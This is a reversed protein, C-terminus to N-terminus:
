KKGYLRGAEMFWEVKEPETGYPVECGTALVYGKGMQKGIDMCQKVSEFIEEKTGNMVVDVPPVNGAVTLVDSM